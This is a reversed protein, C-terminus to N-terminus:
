QLQHDADRFVWDCRSRCRMSYRIHLLIAKLRKTKRVMWRWTGSKEWLISM